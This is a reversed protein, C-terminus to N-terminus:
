RRASKKESYRNLVNRTIQQTYFDGDRLGNIWSATGANFVEGKGKSMVAIMSSGYKSGFNASKPPAKGSKEKLYKVVADISKNLSEYDSLPADVTRKTKVEEGKIGPTMALIVVSKPTGDLHTPEPLGNKFTYDVGDVEFSVISFPDNGFVDAYYLDTKEFAWHDPRYVTFGRSGRPAAGGHAVYVGATGTLGMTEGAPRNVIPNDWLTSVRSEDKTGAVPDDAVHAKYCIQTKGEDELRVQWLYNGAFRAVHGGNNVFADLHDRMEWTWYEDHGVIVVVDYANLIEPRYHLDHQTMYDIVYGENEAWRAFPREFYAWGADAYHRSYRHTIAWELQRYRPNEFPKIKPFQGHRPASDPLVAFGKVWPRQTSVHTQSESTKRTRYMNGGAWDNYALYSSTALMLVINTREGPKAARVVFFHEATAAGKDPIEARARVIYVGSTWETPIKLRFTEKWGAGASYANEQTQQMMGDVYSADKVHKSEAGDREITYSFTKATTHVHFIVDEGPAYSMKDTYMWIEPVNPDNKPFEISGGPVPDLYNSVKAEEAAAAPNTAACWFLVFVVHFKRSVRM